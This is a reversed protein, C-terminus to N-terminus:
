SIYKLSAVQIHDYKFGQLALGWKGVRLLIADNLVPNKNQLSQKKRM